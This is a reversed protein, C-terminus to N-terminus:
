MWERYVSNPSSTSVVSGDARGIVSVVLVPLQSTSEGVNKLRAVSQNRGFCHFDIVLSLGTFLSM